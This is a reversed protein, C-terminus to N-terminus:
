GRLLAGIMDFNEVNLSTVVGPEDGFVADRPGYSFSFSRNRVVKIVVLTSPLYDAVLKLHSLNQVTLVTLQAMGIGARFRLEGLANQISALEYGMPEEIVLPSSAPATSLDLAERHPADFRPPGRRSATTLTALATNVVVSKGSGPPGEVIVLPYDGAQAAAARAFLDRVMPQIISDAFPALGRTMTQTM